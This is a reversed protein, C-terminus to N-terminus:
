GEGSGVDFLRRLRDISLRVRGKLTGVPLVLRRAAERHSLGLFYVLFLARRQEAPLGRVAQRVVTRTLHREDGVAGGDADPTEGDPVPAERRREAQRHRLADLARSRAMAMLWPRLEGQAPDYRPLQRWLQVFVEQLADEAAHEDALVHRLYGYVWPAHREYLWELVAPDRPAALIREAEGQEDGHRRVGQVAM